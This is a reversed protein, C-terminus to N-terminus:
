PATTPFKYVTGVAHGSVVYGPPGGVSRNNYAAWRRLEAVSPNKGYYRRYLNYPYESSGTGAVTHTRDTNAPKTTTTKTTAGSGAWTGGTNTTSTQTRTATRVAQATAKAAQNDAATPTKAKGGQPAPTTAKPKQRISPMGQPPPGFQRLVSTVVAIEEADLEEGNLAKGIANTATLPNYGAGIAWDIATRRWEENTAFGAGSDPDDDDYASDSTPAVAWTGNGLTSPTLSFPGDVGGTVPDPSIIPEPEAPAETDTSQRDRWAMVGLVLGGAGVGWAWAPLGAVKTTLAEQFQNAM